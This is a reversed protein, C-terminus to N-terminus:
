HYINLSCYQLPNVRTYLVAVVYVDFYINLKNLRKIDETFINWLDPQTNTHMKIKKMIIRGTYLQIRCIMM